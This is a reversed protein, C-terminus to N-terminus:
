RSRPGDQSRAAPADPSNGRLRTPLRLLEFGILKAKAPDDATLTVGIVSGTVGSVVPGGSCGQARFPKDLWVYALSDVKTPLRRIHGIIKQDFDYLIVPDGAALSIPGAYRLPRRKDLAPSRYTLIQVDNQQHVRGTVTIRDDFSPSIMEAPTKGEFQHLSCGLYRKGQWDFHFGSGALGEGILTECDPPQVKLPRPSASLFGEVFFIIVFVCVATSVLSAVIGTIAFPVGRIEEPRHRIQRLAIIGTILGPVSALFPSCTLSSVGLVCSVVALGSLKKTDNM